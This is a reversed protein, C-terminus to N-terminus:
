HKCYRKISYHGGSDLSFWVYNRNDFINNKNNNVLFVNTTLDSGVCYDTKQMIENEKPKECTKRIVSNINIHVRVTM